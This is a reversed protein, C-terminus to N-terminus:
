VQACKYHPDTGRTNTLKGIGMINSDELNLWQRIGICKHIEIAEKRGIPFLKLPSGVSCQDNKEPEDTVSMQKVSTKRNLDCEDSNNMKVSLALPYNQYM